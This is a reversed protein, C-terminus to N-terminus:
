KQWTLIEYLNRKYRLSEPLDLVHNSKELNQQIKSWENKKKESKTEWNKLKKIIQQSLHYLKELNSTGRTLDIKISM